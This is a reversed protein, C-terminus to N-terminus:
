AGRFRSTTKFSDRWSTRWSTLPLPQRPRASDAMEESRFDGTVTPVGTNIAFTFGGQNGGTANEQKQFHNYTAGAILTHRGLTKTIDGFVNHNRDYDHYLGVSGLNAFSNSGTFSLTPVVGLTNAYPLTPHIDTSAATTLAGTPTTIIANSSFAYGINALM